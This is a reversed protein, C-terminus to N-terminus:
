TTPISWQLMLVQVYRRDVTDTWSGASHVCFLLRGRLLLTAGLGAAFGQSSLTPETQISFSPSIKSGAFYVVHVSGLSDAFFLGLIAWITKGCWFNTQMRKPRDARRGNRPGADRPEDGMGAEKLETAELGSKEALLEVARRTVSLSEERRASSSSSSPKLCPSPESRPPNTRIKSGM